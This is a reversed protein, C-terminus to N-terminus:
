KSGADAGADPTSAAPAKPFCAAVKLALAVATEPKLQRPDGAAKVASAFCLAAKVDSPSVAPVSPAGGCAALVLVLVFSVLALKKM